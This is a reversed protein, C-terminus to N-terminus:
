SLSLKLVDDIKKYLSNKIKEDINKINSKIDLFDSISFIYHGCVDILEMKNKYPDFDKPFWKIWRGSDYCIKFIDEIISKSNINEIITRTEIQGFEPAINISNLGMKFKEKLVEDSVYDGNHEKSLLGYQKVIELMDYLRNSDYNGINSNGLLATGSQIVSYKIKSFLTNDLNNKFYSLMYKIDDVSFKRISEETGIEFLINNNINVGINMFDITKILGDSLTQYKKWVDIHIVDFFKCDNKFSDLGDDDKYGQLPGCHDRVLLVNNTKNRVYESFERTKWNNVYGGDTDVQRRSSILGINTNNKESYEIVTDVINKSMPGIFIKPNM